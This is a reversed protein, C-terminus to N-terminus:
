GAEAAERVARTETPIRLTLLLGANLLSCVAATIWGGFVMPVCALELAVAVYNPHAIFRYPGERIPQLGDIVIVKTNWRPGLTTIAWYRLGSAVAFGALWVPWLPHLAPGRLWGEVVWALLWGTHLVFFMWYHPEDILRGGQDLAWAQNRKAVRLEAVRQVAVVAFLGLLAVHVPSVM